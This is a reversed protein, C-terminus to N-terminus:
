PLRGAAMHGHGGASGRTGVVERMVTGANLTEDHTRMSIILQERFEGMVVSWEVGEARVLLDALEAVIDARHVEGVHSFVVPGYVLARILARQLAQYYFWSLPAQEIQGLWRQNVSQHLALYLAADAEHTARSLGLTDTKIGYFLATALRADWALDAVQLYQGVITSCAGYSPRVDQYGAAGTRLRSHHDLVINPEITAPLSHNGAGPQTDVLAVADFDAPALQDVTRFRLRLVRVMARNEGRGLFGGYAQTVAHGQRRLLTALGFVSALADPDPDNHTMVLVHHRGAVADLLARLDSPRTPM